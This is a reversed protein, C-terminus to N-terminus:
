LRIPEVNGPETDGFRRRSIDTHVTRASSTLLNQSWNRRYGFHWADKTLCRLEAAYETDGRVDVNLRTDRGHIRSHGYNRTGNPQITRPQMLDESLSATQDSTYSADIKVQGGVKMSLETGPIRFSGPFSGEEIFARKSEGAAPEVAAVRAATQATNDVATQATTQATKATSAATVATKEVASIKEMAQATQAQQTGQQTRLAALETQLSQLQQAQAELMAQQKEVMAALKAMMEEDAALAQPALGATLACVSVTLFLNRM